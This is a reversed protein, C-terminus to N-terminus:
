CNWSIEDLRVINEEKVGLEKCTQTMEKAYAAIVTAIVVKTSADFLVESINKIEKGYFYNEEMKKESVAICSIDVQNKIDTLEQVLLKGINGYGYIVVKSSGIISFLKDLREKIYCRDAYLSRQSFYERFTVPEMQNTIGWNYVKEHKCIPLELIEMYEKHYPHAPNQVNKIFWEDQDIGFWM